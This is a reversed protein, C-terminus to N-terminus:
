NQLVRKELHKNFIFIFTTITICSTVIDCIPQAFFAFKAQFFIPLVIASAMYIIKRTMSLIFATKIRGVATFGDVYCYQFSLPIIGWLSNKIGWLSIEVLEKEETFFNIFKPSIYDTLFFMSGTLCLAVMIIYKEALKVREIQKAGYNYSLLPQTGGSLGILPGTILLLFSQVITAASILLDGQTEGGYKQLMANLMILILSDTALIFFPSFGFRIINKIIKLSYKEKTIPIIIKKSRLFSFAFLFSLVQAIVTAWAAGSVGMNFYFIFITDLIINTIAGIIVTAMGVMSFGQCTIFFNLGVAMLAFFSGLTYITLYQNAYVFTTESGGFIMILKNKLVLFIITLVISLVGLMFFSNSLIQRAEKENQEGMKISMTISGGLGVLTGFSSLFAVIPGCVGVGALALSGIEPIHGIYMRDVISYLLNVLQALMTPIALKFVLGLVSDKGLDNSLKM